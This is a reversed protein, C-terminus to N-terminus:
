MLFLRVWERITIVLDLVEVPPQQRPQICVRHEGCQHQIHLGMSDVEEKGAGCGASSSFLPPRLPSWIVMSFVMGHQVKNTNQLTKKTLRGWNGQPCVERVELMPTSKTPTDAYHRGPVHKKQWGVFEQVPRENCKFSYTMLRVHEFLKTNM